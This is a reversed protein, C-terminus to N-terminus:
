AYKENWLTKEPISWTIIELLMTGDSENLESTRRRCGPFIYFGGEGSGMKALLCKEPSSPTHTYASAAPFKYRGGEILGGVGIIINEPPPVPRYFRTGHEM